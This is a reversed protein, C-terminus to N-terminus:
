HNPDDYYVGNTVSEGGVATNIEQLELSGNPGYRRTNAKVARGDAVLIAVPALL